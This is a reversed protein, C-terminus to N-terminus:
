KQHCSLCIASGQNPAHSWFVGNTVGAVVAAGGSPLGPNAATADFVGTDRVNSPLRLFLTRPTHPNHCSACEIYANTAVGSSVTLGTSTYARIRDRKDVPLIGTDAGGLAGLDRKLYLLKGNTEAQSGNIMETFQPDTTPIEFSIAHDDSLDTTLNPFPASGSDFLTDNTYLSGGFPDGKSGTRLASTFTHNTVDVNTGTFGGFLADAIDHQGPLATGGPAQTTNGIQYGGSGQLNILADFAITGDHCSLCALSVGKIKGANLSAASSAEFHPSTLDAYTTYATGSNIKRNWLPAMGNPLLSAYGAGHPTHCYVCVENSGATTTGFGVNTNASLNHKTTSVNEAPFHDAYSLGSSGLWLIVGGLVGIVTATCQQTLRQM